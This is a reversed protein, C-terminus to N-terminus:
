LLYKEIEFAFGSWNWGNRPVSKVYEQISQDIAQLSIGSTKYFTFNEVIQSTMWESIERNHFFEYAAKKQYFIRKRKGNFGFIFIVLFCGLALCCLHKLISELYCKKM